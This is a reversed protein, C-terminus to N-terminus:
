MVIELYAQQKFPFLFFERQKGYDESDLSTGQYQVPAEPIAGGAEGTKDRAVEREVRELWVTVYAAEPICTSGVRKASSM